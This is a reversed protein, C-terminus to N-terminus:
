VSAHATEPRLGLSDKIRDGVRLANAAAVLQAPDQDPPLSMGM